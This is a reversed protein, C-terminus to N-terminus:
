RLRGNTCAWRRKRFRNIGNPENIGNCAELLALYFLDYVWPSNRYSYWFKTM